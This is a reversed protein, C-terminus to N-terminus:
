PMRWEQVLARTAAEPDPACVVASVVALGVAGARKLAAADGVRLGGIALAPVSTRAIIQALGDFGMPLAHDPKTATARVPGVGIYDIGAPIRLCQAPTEISLGLLKDPGLRARAAVPEDDSQGIHLGDADAALAIELRDNIILKVGMPRLQTVLARALALFVTDPATKDRLQIAWAGGRAAALAQEIVPYPAAPDTVVYVTGIKSHPKM